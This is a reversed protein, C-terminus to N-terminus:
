PASLLLAGQGLYNLVLSPMVVFWWAMRIPAASTAWTPM